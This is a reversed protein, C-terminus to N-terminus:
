IVPLEWALGCIEQVWLPSVEVGSAPPTLHPGLFLAYHLICPLHFATEEEGRRGGERGRERDRGRRERWRQREKETDREGM